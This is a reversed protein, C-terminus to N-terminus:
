LLDKNACVQSVQVHYKSVKSRSGSGTEEGGFEAMPDMDQQKSNTATGLM